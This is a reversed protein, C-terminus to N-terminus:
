MLLDHGDAKALAQIRNWLEIPTGQPLPESIGLSKAYLAFAELLPFVPLSSAVGNLKSTFATVVVAVTVGHGKADWFFYEGNQVDIAELYNLIQSSDEILRMSQDDKEFVFLPYTIDM